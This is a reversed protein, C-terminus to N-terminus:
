LVITFESPFKVKPYVFHLLNDGVLLGMFAGTVSPWSYIVFSVVSIITSLNVSLLFHNMSSLYDSIPIEVETDSRSMSICIKLNFYCIGLHM